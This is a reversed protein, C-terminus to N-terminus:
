GRRQSRGREKVTEDLLRLKRPTIGLSQRQQGLQLGQLLPHHLPCPRTALAVLLRGVVLVPLHGKVQHSCSRRTAAMRWVREGERNSEPRNLLQCLLFMRQSDLHLLELGFEVM